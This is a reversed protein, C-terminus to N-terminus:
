IPRKKRASKTLRIQGTQRNGVRQFMTRTCKQLTGLIVPVLGSPFTPTGGTFTSQSIRRTTGSGTYAILCALFNAWYWSPLQYNPLGYPDNGLPPSIVTGSYGTGAFSANITGATAAQSVFTITGFAGSGNGGPNNWYTFYTGNAVGPYTGGTVLVPASPVGATLTFSFTAATGGTSNPAPIAQAPTDFPFTIAQTAADAYSTAAFYTMADDSMYDKIGRISHEYRRLNGCEQRTLITEEPSSCYQNSLANTSVSLSDLCGYKAFNPMPQSSKFLSAQHCIANKIFFNQGLLAARAQTLVYANQLPLATPPQGNLLYRETWGAQREQPPQGLSVTDQLYFDASNNYNIKLELEYFDSYQAPPTPM